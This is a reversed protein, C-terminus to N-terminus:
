QGAMSSTNTNAQRKRMRHFLSTTPVTCNAHFSASIWTPTFWITMQKLRIRIPMCDAIFRKTHQNNSNYRHHNSAKFTALVSKPPMEAILKLVPPMEAITKKPPPMEAIFFNSHANKCNIKSFPCKQLKNNFPPMEAIIKGFPPM